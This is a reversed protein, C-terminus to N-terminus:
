LNKKDPTYYPNGIHAAGGLFIIVTDPDNGLNKIEKCFAANGTIIREYINTTGSDYGSLENEGGCIRVGNTIALRAMKVIEKSRGYQLLLPGFVDRLTTGDEAVQTFKRELLAKDINPQEKVSLHELIIVVKRGQMINPNIFLDMNNTILEKSTIHTHYEAILIKRIKKGLLIDTLISRNTKM